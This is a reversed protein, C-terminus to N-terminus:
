ENLVGKYFKIVDKAEKNYIFEKTCPNFLIVRLATWGNFGFKFSKKNKLHKVKKRLDFDIENAILLMTIHTSMHRENPSVIFDIAKNSFPIINENIYDNSIEDLSKVFVYERNEYGWVVKDKTLFYQNNNLIFEGMFEFNYKDLKYDDYINFHNSMSNKLKNLISSM